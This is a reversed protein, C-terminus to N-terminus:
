SLSLSLSLDVFAKSSKECSLGTQLGCTRESLAEAGINDGTSSERESSTGLQSRSNPLSLPM